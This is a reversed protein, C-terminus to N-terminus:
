PPPIYSLRQGAPDWIRYSTPTAFLGIATLPAIHHRALPFALPVANGAPLLGDVTLRYRVCTGAMCVTGGRSMYVHAVFTHRQNVYVTHEMEGAPGPCAAAQVDRMWTLGCVRMHTLGPMWTSGIWVRLLHHVESELQVQVRLQGGYESLGCVGMSVWM